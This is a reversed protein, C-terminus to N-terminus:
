KPAALILIMTRRLIGNSVLTLGVISDLSMLPVNLRRATLSKM